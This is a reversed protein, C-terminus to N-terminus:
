PQRLDWDMKGETSRAQYRCGCTCAHTLTDTM